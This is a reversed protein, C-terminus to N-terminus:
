RVQTITNRQIEHQWFLDKLEQQFLVWDMTHYGSLCIVVDEIELTCYDPFRLCQQRENLGYDDCEQNWKHLFKNVDMKDFLLAEPSGLRPM